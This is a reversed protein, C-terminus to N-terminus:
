PQGMVQATSPMGRGVWDLVDSRLMRHGVSGGVFAAKLNGSSIAKRILSKGVKAFVSAAKVDFVVDDNDSM